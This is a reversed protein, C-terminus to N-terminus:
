IKIDSRQLEFEKKGIIIQNEQRMTKTAFLMISCSIDIRNSVRSDRIDEGILESITNLHNNVTNRHMHMLKATESVNCGCAIYSYLFELNNTGHIEDYQIIGMIEPGALYTLRDHGYHTQLHQACLYITYFQIIENFYVYNKGNLVYPMKDIISLMEKAQTYLTQLGVKYHASNSIIGYCNNSKLFKDFEEEDFDPKEIHSKGSVWILLRNDLLCVNNTHFINKLKNICKYLSMKNSDYSILITRIFIDLKDPCSNFMSNLTEIDIESSLLAYEAVRTFSNQVLIDQENDVICFDPLVTTLCHLMERIGFTESSLNCVLYGLLGSEAEVPVTINFFETVSTRIEDKPNICHKLCEVIQGHNLYSNVQNDDLYKMSHSNYSAANVIQFTPSLLYLTGSANVSNLAESLLNQINFKSVSISTIRKKMETLKSINDFVTNHLESLECGFAIVNAKLATFADKAIKKGAVAVLIVIDQNKAADKCENLGNLDCFFLVDGKRRISNKSLMHFNETYELRIDKYNGFIVKGELGNLLTTLYIMVTEKTCSACYYEFVTHLYRSGTGAFISIEIIAASQDFM